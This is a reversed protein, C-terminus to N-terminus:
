LKTPSEMPIKNGWMPDTVPEKDKLAALERQFEALQSRMLTVVGEFADAVILNSAGYLALKVPLHMCQMTTHMQELCRKEAIERCQAPTPSTM